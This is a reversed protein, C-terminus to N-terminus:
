TVVARALPKGSHRSSSLYGTRMAIDGSTLEIPQSRGLRIEDAVTTAITSFMGVGPGIEPLTTDSIQTM